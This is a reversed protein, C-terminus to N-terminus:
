LNSRKVLGYRTGPPYPTPQDIKKQAPVSMAVREELEEVTLRRTEEADGQETMPLKVDKGKKM